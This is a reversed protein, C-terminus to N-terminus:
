INIVLKICQDTAYRPAHNPPNLGGGFNRLYRRLGRDCLCSTGADQNAKTTLQTSM